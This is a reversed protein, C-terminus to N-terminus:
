CDALQVHTPNSAWSDEMAPPSNNFNGSNVRAKPHGSCRKKEVAVAFPTALLYRPQLGFIPIVSDIANGHMVGRGGFNKTIAQVGKKGFVGYSKQV